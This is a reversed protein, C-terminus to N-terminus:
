KCPGNKVVAIGYNNAECENCYTKGDCGCVGPCDQPCIVTHKLSANYCSPVSDKSCSLVVIFFLILLIKM